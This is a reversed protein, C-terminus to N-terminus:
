QRPCNRHQENAAGAEFGRAVLASAKHFSCWRRSQLAPPSGGDETVRAATTAFTVGALYTWGLQRHGRGHSVGCEPKTASAQELAQAEPAVEPRADHSSAHIQHRHVGRYVDMARTSVPGAGDLLAPIGRHDLGQGDIAIGAPLEASPARVAVREDRPPDQGTSVLFTDM